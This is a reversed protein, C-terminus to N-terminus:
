ESDRLTYIGSMRRAEQVNAIITMQELIREPQGALGFTIAAHRRSILSTIPANQFTDVCRRLLRRSASVRYEEQIHRAVITGVNLLFQGGPEDHQRLANALLQMTLPHPGAYAVTQALRERLETRAFVTRWIGPQQDLRELCAFALSNDDIRAGTYAISLMREIWSEREGSPPLAALGSVSHLKEALAVALGVDNRARDALLPLARFLTLPESIEALAVVAFTAEPTGSAALAQWCHRILWSDPQRVQRDNPPPPTKSAQRLANAAAAVLPHASM